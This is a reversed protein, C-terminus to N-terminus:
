DYHADRAVVAQRVGVEAVAVADGDRQEGVGFAVHAAFVAHQLLLLVLAARPALAQHAGGEDDVLLADEPVDGVADVRAAVGGLHVVQDLAQAGLACGRTTTTAGFVTTPTRM